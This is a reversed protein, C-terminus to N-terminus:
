IIMSRERSGLHTAKCIQRTNKKSGVMLLMMEDGPDALRQMM